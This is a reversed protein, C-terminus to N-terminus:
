GTQFFNIIIFIDDSQMVLKDWDNSRDIMLDILWGIMQRVEDDLFNLYEKQADRLKQDEIIDAM